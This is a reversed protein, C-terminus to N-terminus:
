LEPKQSDDVPIPQAASLAQKKLERIVARNHGLEARKSHLTQDYEHVKDCFYKFPGASIAFSVLDAAASVYQGQLLSIVSQGINGGMFVAATKGSSIMKKKRKETEQYGSEIKQIYIDGKEEIEAHQNETLLHLSKYTIGMMDLFAEQHQALAEPDNDNSPAIAYTGNAIKRARAGSKVIEGAQPINKTVVNKFTILPMLSKKAAAHAFEKSLTGFSAKEGQIIRLFKKGASTQFLDRVSIDKPVSELDLGSEQLVLSDYTEAYRHTLNEIRAKRKSANWANQCIEYGLKAAALVCVSSVLLLFSNNTVPDLSQAIIAAASIKGINVAPVVDSILEDTLEQYAHDIDEHAYHFARALKLINQRKHESFEKGALPLYEAMLQELPEHKVEAKEREVSQKAAGQAM